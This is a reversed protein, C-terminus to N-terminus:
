EVAKKAVWDRDGSKGNYTYALKGKITDGSLQGTYTTVVEATQRERTNPTGSSSIVSVTRTVKFSVQRDKITGDTLPAEKGDRGTVTGALTEGDQKVKMVIEIKQGQPSTAAWKWTGTINPADDAIAILPIAAMSLIVCFIAARANRRTFM